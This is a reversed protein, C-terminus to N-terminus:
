VQSKERRRLQSVVASPGPEGRAFVQLFLRLKM